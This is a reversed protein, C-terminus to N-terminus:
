YGGRFHVLVYKNKNHGERVVKNLDRVSEEMNLAGDGGKEVM